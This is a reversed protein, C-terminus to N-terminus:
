KLNEVKTDSGKQFAEINKGIKEGKSSNLAFFRHSM